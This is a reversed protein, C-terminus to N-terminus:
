AIAASPVHPWTETATTVHRLEEPLLVTLNTQKMQSKIKPIAKTKMKVTRYFLSMTECVVRYVPYM